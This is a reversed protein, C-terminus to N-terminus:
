NNKKANKIMTDLIKIKEDYESEAKKCQNLDSIPQKCQDFIARDERKQEGSFYKLIAMKEEFDQQKKAIKEFFEITERIESFQKRIKKESDKNEEEPNIKPINKETKKLLEKDFIDKKELATIRRKLETCDRHYQMIKESRLILEISEKTEELTPLLKELDEQRENTDANFFLKFNSADVKKKIKELNIKPHNNIIEDIDTIKNKLNRLLFFFFQNKELFDIKEKEQNKKYIKQIFIQMFTSEHYYQKITIDLANDYKNSNKITDGHILTKALIALNNTKLGISVFVDILLLPSFYHILNKIKKEEKIIKTKHKLLEIDEKPLYAEFLSNINDLEEKNECPIIDSEYKKILNKTGINLLFSLAISAIQKKYNGFLNYFVFLIIFYKKKNM